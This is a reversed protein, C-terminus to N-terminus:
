RDKNKKRNAYYVGILIVSLGFIQLLGIKEGYIFGWIIAVFPIGYTTMSSFIAGSMKILRYYLVSAFSTSMIGLLISFGMSGAVAKDTFQLSFYGSSVLVLMAPISNLFLSLSVIQLAPISQLYHYVLNANIGYSLTALIILLIYFPRDGIGLDSQSFFLLLCGTFAIFVGIWHQLTPKSKFIIAGSIIAFIPTLANLTGALSSSIGLEALCFLYAPILSGLAGSMFVVPWKKLPIEKLGKFLIPLLVIGSSVIRLSAVQYSNLNKLGEKMLIFSSGWIVSLGIFLSWKKYQIDM